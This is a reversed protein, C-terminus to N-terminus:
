SQPRELRVGFANAGAFSFAIRFAVRTKQSLSTWVEGVNDRYAYIWDGIGDRAIFCYTAELRAVEGHFEQELPYHLAFRVDPNTPADRLSRFTEKAKDVAGQVFQYRGFLLQGDYNADGAIFSRQLHYLIAEPPTDDADILLKAYSYHLRRDNPNAALATELTTKAKKIQNDRRYLQALRVALFGSRPNTQFAKELASVARASDAILEAMKAEAARLYSDGPFEQLGDQLAQEVVKIAQEIETANGDALADSLRVLGIKALTVYGYAEGKTRQNYERCLNTAERL